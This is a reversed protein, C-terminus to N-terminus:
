YITLVATSNNLPFSPRVVPVRWAMSIFALTSLLMIIFGVWLAVHGAHGLEQYVPLDPIVTPQVFNQNTQTGELACTNSSIM